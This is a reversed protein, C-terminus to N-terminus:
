GFCSMILGLWLWDGDVKEDTVERRGSCPFHQELLTLMKSNNDQTM